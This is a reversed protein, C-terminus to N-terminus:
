EVSYFTTNSSSLYSLLIADAFAWPKNDLGNLSLESWDFASSYYYKKFNIGLGLIISAM